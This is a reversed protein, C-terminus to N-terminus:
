AAFIPPRLGFRDSLVGAVMQDLEALPPLDCAAQMATFGAAKEANAELWTRGALRGVIILLDHLLGAPVEAPGGFSVHCEVAALAVLLDGIHGRADPRCASRFLQDAASITKPVAGPLQGV